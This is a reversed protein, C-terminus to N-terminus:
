TQAHFYYIVINVVDKNVVFSLIFTNFYSLLFEWIFTVTESNSYFLYTFFTLFLTFFIEFIFSFFTLFSTFSTLFLFNLLFIDLFTSLQWRFIIESNFFIYVFSRGHLLVRELWLYFSLKRLFQRSWWWLEM